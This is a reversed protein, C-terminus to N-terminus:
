FALIDNVELRVSPSGQCRRHSDITYAEGAPRKPNRKRKKGPRNGCSLPTKRSQHRAARRKAESDCPRFCYTQGDRVLYRLLIGQAKPGLPIIRERGRHEIKHSQPRYIWVDSSRDLDCPRMMCLEAPRMGTLRHLRVMNGVIQPLYPLTADILSDQVPLIPATERAKTRDKRLGDVCRLSEFIASPLLEKAVGWRFIRRVRSIARNIGTRSWGDAIMRGRVAKLSLPGFERVLTKGYLEKVPRLASKLACIENTPKGDKRYYGNAYKWYRALLESVTLDSNSGM